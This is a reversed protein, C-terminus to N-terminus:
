KNEEKYIYYIVALALFILGWVALMILFSHDGAVTPVVGPVPVLAPPAQHVVAPFAPSPILKPIPTSKVLHALLTNMSREEKMM